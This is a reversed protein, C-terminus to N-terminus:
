YAALGNVRKDTRGPEKSRADAAPHHEEVGWRKEAIKFM